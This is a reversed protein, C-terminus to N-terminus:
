TFMWRNIWDMLGYKQAKAAVTKHTIGLVKAAATYSGHKALAARIIQKEYEELPFIKEKVISGYLAGPDSDVAAERCLFYPLDDNDIHSADTLVVIREMINKLERVNGPWDYRILTDMAARSIGSIQKGIQENFQRLFHDVLLPIDEKRDKLPPLYIPIVNLRYYLDERFRGDKVMQALDRNTAAVVRVDVRLTVEGGVREFTNNQLVRLLKTQMSLELEGIEDLFLTGKDALEFKGLKKRIAGTFAGKEHGFLESELLNAPIAACNVRLLPQQARPSARHIGEAVLEKGTGSKGSILVTSHAKAAKGALTLAELVEPNVGIFAEFCSGSKLDRVLKRELTEGVYRGPHWHTEHDRKIKQEMYSAKATAIKLNDHLIRMATDARVMAAVALLRGDVVVPRMEVTLKAGSPAHDVARQVVTEGSAAERFLDGLCTDDVRAGTMEERPWGLIDAFADNLHHIYGTEDVICIGDDVFGIVSQLIYGLEKDTVDAREENTMAAKRM